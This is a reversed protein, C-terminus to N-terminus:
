TLRLIMNSVWTLGNFDRPSIQPRFRYQENNSMQRCQEHERHCAQGVFRETAGSACHDVLLSFSAQDEHRDTLEDVEKDAVSRIRHDAECSPSDGEKEEEEEEEMYDRVLASSLNKAAEAKNM